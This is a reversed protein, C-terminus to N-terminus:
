RCTFYPAAKKFAMTDMLGFELLQSSSNFPGNKERHALIGEVVDRELYPHRLMEAYGAFNLRIKRLSATDARLRQRLNYYTEEPFGYVELLQGCSYFGGLLERYKLIRSAFVPGIGQLGTLEASDASNLEVPSDPVAGKDFRVEDQRKIIRIRAEVAQYFISDVGYIRMLDRAQSFYGGSERYRLLNSVQFQNFGLLYLDEAKVTNPDFTEPGSDKSNAIIEQRMRDEPTIRIFPEMVSFMSDSMGYIKRVDSPRVFRGGAGRYSLINKKIFLPIGLSDLGNESIKNPDFLFWQRHLPIEELNCEWERLIKEFESFDNDPEIELHDAAMHGLLVIVILTALVIIANRDQRQFHFYAKVIRALPNKM